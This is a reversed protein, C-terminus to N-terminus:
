ASIDRLTAPRFDACKALHEAAAHTLNACGTFNVSQLQACKALHEAASDTLESCNEFNVPHTTVVFCFRKQM